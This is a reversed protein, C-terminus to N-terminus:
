EVIFSAEGMPSTIKYQTPNGSVMKATYRGTTACCDKTNLNFQWIGNDYVFQNSSTGNGLSGGVIEQAAAGDQGWFTLSLVPPATMDAETITDGAPDTLRTKFPICRNKKVTIVKDKVPAQFGFYHYFPQEYEVVTLTFADTAWPHYDFWGGPGPGVCGYWNMHMIATEGETDTPEGSCWPEPDWGWDEYTIWCFPDQATPRFAGLWTKGWYWSINDLVFQNEGWDQITLLHGQLLQGSEPDAFTRTATEAIAEEHTQGTSVCAYWHGNASYKIPDSPCGAGTAGAALFYHGVLTGLIVVLARHTIFHNM